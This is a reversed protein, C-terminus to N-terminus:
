LRTVAKRACRHARAIMHGGGRLIRLGVDPRPDADPRQRWAVVGIGILAVVAAAIGALPELTAAAFMLAAAVLATALLIASDM